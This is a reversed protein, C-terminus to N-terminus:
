LYYIATISGVFIDWPEDQLSTAISFGTRSTDVETDTGRDFTNTSASEYSLHLGVTGQLALRPIGIFGFQIEAGIRGGLQLLLGNLQPDLPHDVSGTAFGFNLDPIVLFKYHQGHDFVLPLGAHLIFGFVTPEDSNATTTGGPTITEVSNSGLSLHLGLAFELAM